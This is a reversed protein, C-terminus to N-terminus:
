AEPVTECIVVLADVAVAGAPMLILPNVDVSEVQPFALALRALAVLTKAVEDSSDELGADAVLSRAASTDIPAVSLAVRGLSEVAAGGGGVALVPGYDPDRTMGCFVEAGREVQKAVLVPGGLRRAAEAAEATSRVDLVVGGARSKHAPGDRKVVVPM